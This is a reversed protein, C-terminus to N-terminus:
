PLNLQWSVGFRDNLWVFRRSFGYNDLPMLIKGGQSLHEFAKTQEAEDACDVFLSISPTFTFAHKGPSDFCRLRYGGLVFEAGKVTGEAGPEGPGWRDIRKIESSPFLSVYLNMAAEATGEFMLFASIAQAM